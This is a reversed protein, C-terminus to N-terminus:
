AHGHAVCLTFSIVKKGVPVYSSTYPVHQHYLFIPCCNYCTYTVYGDHTSPICALACSFLYLGSELCPFINCIEDTISCTDNTLAALILWLFHVSVLPWGIDFDNMLVPKDMAKHATVQVATIHEVTSYHM